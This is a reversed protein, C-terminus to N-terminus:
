ASSLGCAPHIAPTRPDTSFGAVCPCKKGTRFAIIASDNRTVYYTKEAELTWKEEEKLETFGNKELLNKVVLAGHFASPAGYIFDILEQALAKQM